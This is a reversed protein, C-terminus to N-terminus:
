GSAKEDEHSYSTSLGTDHHASRRSVFVTKPPQTFLEGSTATAPKRTCSRTLSRCLPTNHPIYTRGSARPFPSAAARRCCITSCAWVRTSSTQKLTTAEFAAA